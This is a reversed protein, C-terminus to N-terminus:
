WNIPMALCLLALEQFYSNHAATKIRAQLL